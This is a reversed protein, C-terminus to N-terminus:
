RLTLRKPLPHMQLARREKRVMCRRIERLHSNAPPRLVARRTTLVRGLFAHTLRKPFFRARCTLRKLFFIPTSAPKLGLPSRERSGLSRSKPDPLGSPSTQEICPHRLTLNKPFDCHREHLNSILRNGRSLHTSEPTPNSVSDEGGVSHTEM